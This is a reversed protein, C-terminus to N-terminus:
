IIYRSLPFIKEMQCKYIINVSVYGCLGQRPVTWNALFWISPWPKDKGDKQVEIELSEAKPPYDTVRCKRADLYTCETALVEDNFFITIQYHTINISILICLSPYPAAFLIINYSLIV